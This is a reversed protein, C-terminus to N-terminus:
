LSTHVSSLDVPREGILYTPPARNSDVVEGCFSLALQLLRNEKLKMSIWRNGVICIQLVNPHVAVPVIQAVVVGEDPKRRGKQIIRPRTPIKKKGMQVWACWTFLGPMANFHYTVLQTDFLNCRQVYHKFYM